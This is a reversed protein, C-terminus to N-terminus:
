QQQILDLTKQPVAGDHANELHRRADEHVATMFNILQMELRMKQEFDQTEWMKNLLHKAHQHITFAVAVPLHIYSQQISEKLQDLAKLYQKYDKIDQECRTKLMALEAANQTRLLEIEHALQVSKKQLEAALTHEALIQAQKIKTQQEHNAAQWSLNADKVSHFLNVLESIWNKLLTM